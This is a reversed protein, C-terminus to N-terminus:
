DIDALVDLRNCSSCLVARIRNTKHDHDLNKKRNTFDAGCYFCEKTNIYMDYIEDCTYGCTAMTRHSWSNISISKQFKQKYEQPTYKLHKYYLNYACIYKKNEKNWEKKIQKYYEPNQHYYKASPM